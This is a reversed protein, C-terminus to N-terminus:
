NRQGDELAVLGLEPEGDGIQDPIRQAYLGPVTGHHGEEVPGALEITDVREGGPIEYLGIRIGSEGGSRVVAVEETGDGTVDGAPAAPVPQGPSNRIQWSPTVPVSWREAFEDGARVEVTAEDADQDEQYVIAAPTEDGTLDAEVPTISARSPHAIDSRVTGEGPVFVVSNRDDDDHAGFTVEDYGDGTRDGISRLTDQDLRGEYEAERVTEFSLEGSGDPELVALEGDRSVAVLNELEGEGGVAVYRIDNGDVPQWETGQEDSHRHEYVRYWVAEGTRVDFVFAGQRDGVLVNANGNGTVDGLVSVSTPSLRQEGRTELDVVLTHRQRESGDDGSRVVLEAIPDDEGDHRGPREAVTLLDHGDDTEITRVTSTARDQLFTPPDVTETWAVSGDVGSRVAIDRVYQERDIEHSSTVLVDATGDGLFDGRTVDENRVAPYYWELTGTTDTGLVDGETSAVVLGDDVTVYGTGEDRGHRDVDPVADIELTETVTGDTLDVAEVAQSEGDPARPVLLSGGAVDPAYAISGATAVPAEESSWEVSGTDPDLLHLQERDDELRRETPDEDTSVAVALRGDAVVLELNEYNADGPVTPVARLESGGGRYYSVIEADAYSVVTETWVVSGDDPEVLSVAGDETAAALHETGDVTVSELDWVSRPIPDFRDSEFPEALQTEFVREGSMTEIGILSGDQTGAYVRDGDTELTWVPSEADVAWRRDGSEADLGVIGHGAAVAVAGGDDIPEADFADVQRDVEGMDPNYVTRTRSEDWELSGDSLDVALVNAFHDDDTLVIAREGAVHTIEQVPRLDVFQELTGDAVVYLGDDTGVLVRDDAPVPETTVDGALGIPGVEPDDVATVELQQTDSEVGEDVTTADANAVVGGVYAVGGVLCVLFLVVAAVHTTRM